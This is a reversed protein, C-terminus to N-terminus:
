MDGDAEGTDKDEPHVGETGQRGGPRRPSEVGYDTGPM